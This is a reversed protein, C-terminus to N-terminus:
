EISISNDGNNTDKPRKAGGRVKGQKGEPIEKCDLKDAQKNLKDNPEKSSREKM